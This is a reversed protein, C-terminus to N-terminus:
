RRAYPRVRYASAAPWTRKAPSREDIKLRGDMIASRINDAVQKAVGSRVVEDYKLIM